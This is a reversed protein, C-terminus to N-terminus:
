FGGNWTVDSSTPRSIKQFVGLPGGRRMRPDKEVQGSRSYRTPPQNWSTAVLRNFITALSKWAIYTYVNVIYPSTGIWTAVSVKMEDLFLWRCSRNRVLIYIYIKAASIEHIQAQHGFRIDKQGRDNKQDRKHFWEDRQLHTGWPAKQVGLRAAPLALAVFCVLWFCQQKAGEETPQFNKKWFIRPCTMSQTHTPLM